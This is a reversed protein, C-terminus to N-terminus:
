LMILNKLLRWFEGMNGFSCGRFKLDFGFGYPCDAIESTTGSCELSNETGDNVSYTFGYAGNIPCYIPSVAPEGMFGKTGPILSFFIDRPKRSDRFFTCYDACSYRKKRAYLFKNGERPRSFIALFSLSFFIHHFLAPRQSYERRLHNDSQECNSFLSEKLSRVSLM